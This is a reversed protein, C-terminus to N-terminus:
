FQVDLIVDDAYVREAGVTNNEDFEYQDEADSLEKEFQEIKETPVLYLGVSEGSINSTVEVLTKGNITM